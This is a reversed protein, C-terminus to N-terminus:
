RLVDSYAAACIGYGGAMGILFTMLFTSAVTVRKKRQALVILLAALLAVVVAFNQWFAPPPSPPGPGGGENFTFFRANFFFGTVVWAFVGLLAGSVGAM